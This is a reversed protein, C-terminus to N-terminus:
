FMQLYLSQLIMCLPRKCKNETNTLLSAFEGCSGIIDMKKLNAAKMVVAVIRNNTPQYMMSM